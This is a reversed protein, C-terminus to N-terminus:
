ATKQETPRMYAVEWQKDKRVLSVQPSERLIKRLFEHLESENISTVNLEFM